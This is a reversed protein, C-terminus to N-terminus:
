LTCKQSCPMVYAVVVYSVCYCAHPSHSNLRSPHLFAHVSVSLASGFANLASSYGYNADLIDRQQFDSRM